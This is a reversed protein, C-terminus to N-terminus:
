GYWACYILLAQLLELSSDGGSVYKLGLVKLFEEDYLSHTQVSSLGSAVTLIALLAFPHTSALQPVTTGNCIDLFPLNKLMGGFTELLSQASAANFQPKRWIDVTTRPHNSAASSSTSQSLLPPEDLFYDEDLAGYFTSVHM